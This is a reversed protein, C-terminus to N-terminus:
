SATSFLLYTKSGDKIGWYLERCGVGVNEKLGLDAVGGKGFPGFGFHFSTKSVNEIKQELIRV